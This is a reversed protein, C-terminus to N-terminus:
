LDENENKTIPLNGQYESLPSITIDGSKSWVSNQYDRVYDDPVYIAGTLNFASFDVESEPPTTAMFVLNDIQNNPLYHVDTILSPILFEISPLSSAGVYTLDGTFADGITTGEIAYEITNVSELQVNRMESVIPDIPEGNFTLGTIQDVDAGEGNYFTIDGESDATTFVLVVKETEPQPEPQPETKDYALTDGSVIWSVAPYELEAAEYEVRTALKRLNRAM